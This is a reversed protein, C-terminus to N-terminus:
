LNVFSDWVYQPRKQTCLEMLENIRNERELQEILSIFRRERTQGALDDYSVDLEFCLTVLDNDNFANKLQQLFETRKIVTRNKGTNRQDSVGNVTTMNQMDVQNEQMLSFLDSFVENVMLLAFDREVDDPITQTRWTSIMSWSGMDGHDVEIRCLEITRYSVISM